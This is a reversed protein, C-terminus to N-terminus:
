KPKGLCIRGFFWLPAMIPSLVWLTGGLMCAIGWEHEEPDMLNIVSRAMPFGIVYSVIFWAWLWIM